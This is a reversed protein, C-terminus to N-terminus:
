ITKAVVHTERHSKSAMNKYATDARVNFCAADLQLIMKVGM